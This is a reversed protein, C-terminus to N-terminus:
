EKTNDKYTAPCNMDNHDKMNDKYTAPCNM